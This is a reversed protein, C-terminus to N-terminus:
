VWSGSSSSDDVVYTIVQTESMETTMDTEDMTTMMDTEEMETTMDTEWPTLKLPPHDAKAICIKLCKSKSVQDLKKKMTDGPARSFEVVKNKVAEFGAPGYVEICGQAGYRDDNDDPGDHLLHNGTITFAGNDAEGEAGHLEYEMYASIYSQKQALGVMKPTNSGEPLYPMFRIVEIDMATKQGQDDFGSIQAKYIPVSYKLGNNRPYTKAGTYEGSKESSVQIEVPALTLAPEYTESNIDETNM